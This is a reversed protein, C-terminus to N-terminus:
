RGGIGSFRRTNFSEGAAVAIDFKGPCRILIVIKSGSVTEVTLITIGVRQVFVAQFALVVGDAMIPTPIVAGAFQFVVTLFDLVFVRAVAARYSGFAIRDVAFVRQRQRCNILKERNATFPTVVFKAIRHVQGPSGTGFRRGALVRQKHFIFPPDELRQRQRGAHTHVIVFGVTFM